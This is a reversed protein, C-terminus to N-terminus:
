SSASDPGDFLVARERGSFHPLYVLLMSVVTVTVFLITGTVLGSLYKGAM